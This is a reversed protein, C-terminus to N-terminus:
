AAILLLFYNLAQQRLLVLKDDNSCFCKDNREFYFQMTKLGQRDCSLCPRKRKESRTSAHKRRELKWKGKTRFPSFHSSFLIM